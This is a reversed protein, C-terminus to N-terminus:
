IHLCRVNRTRHGSRDRSGGLQVQRNVVRDNKVIRVLEGHTQQRAVDKGSHSMYPMLNGLEFDVKSLPEGIGRARNGRKAPQRERPLRTVASALAVDLESDWLPRQAQALVRGLGSAAGGFTLGVAGVATLVAAVVTAATRVVVVTVIAAALLLAVAITTVWFRRLFDLTLQRLHGLFRDAAWLYDDTSLLDLCDKEGSLVARWVQGQRHLARTVSERDPASGWDVPRGHPQRPPRTPWWGLIARRPPVAPAPRPNPTMGPPQSDADADAARGVPLRLTPTQSWAAWAQLSGRVAEAAHPPFASKLDALWDLLNALRYRAFARQFTAPQKADPLLATEALARGLGYAKGLRFDAATLAVLLQRHLRAVAAPLQGPQRV